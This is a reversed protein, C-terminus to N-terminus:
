FAQDLWFDSKFQWNIEGCSEFHAIQLVQPTACRLVGQFSFAFTMTLRAQM